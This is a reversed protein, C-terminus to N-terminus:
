IAELLVRAALSLATQAPEEINVSVRGVAWTIRLVDGSVVGREPADCVSRGGDDRMHFWTDIGRSSLVVM